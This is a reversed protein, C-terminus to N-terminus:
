VSPFAKRFLWLLAESLGANVALSCSPSLPTCFGDKDTPPPPALLQEASFYTAVPFAQLFSCLLRPIFGPLPLGGTPFRGPPHPWLVSDRPGRTHDRSHSSLGPFSSAGCTAPQAHCTTGWEDASLPSQPEPGPPVTLGKRLSPLRFM